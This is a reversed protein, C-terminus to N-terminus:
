GNRKRFLSLFWDLIGTDQERVYQEVVEYGITPDIIGGNIRGIFRAIGIERILAHLDAV